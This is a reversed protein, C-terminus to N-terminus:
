HLLESLEKIKKPNGASILKERGHLQILKRWGDKRAKAEGTMNRNHRRYFYLSQPIHRFSGLESLRLFLDYEEWFMKKYGGIKRLQSRRMMVGCAVMEYMDNGSLSIAEKQGDTILSRDSFVAAVEPNSDLIPVESSLIKPDFLDDSDLRIFYEGQAEKLGRNCTEPLGINKQHFVRIVEEYKSLISETEDTSGDNIVLIEFQEQPYDQNMVSNIASELFECQNYTAIFVTVKKKMAEKRINYM